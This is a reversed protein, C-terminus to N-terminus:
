GRYSPFERMLEMTVRQRLEREPIGDAQYKQILEMTRQQVKQKMDSQNATGSSEDLYRVKGGSVDAFRTRETMGDKEKIERIDSKPSKPMVSGVLSLSDPISYGYAALANVASSQEEPTINGTEAMKTALGAVVAAGRKAMEKEQDRLMRREALNAFAPANGASIEKMRQSGKRREEEIEDTKKQDRIAVARPDQYMDLELGAKGKAEAIRSERDYDTREKDYKGKLGLEIELKQQFERIAEEREKRKREQQIGEQVQQNWTGAAGLLAGLISDGFMSM